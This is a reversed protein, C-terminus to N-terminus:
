KSGERKLVCTQPISLCTKEKYYQHRIYCQSMAPMCPVNVLGRISHNITFLFVEDRFIGNEGRPPLLADTM